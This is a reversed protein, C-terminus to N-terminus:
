SLETGAEVTRIPRRAPERVHGIAPKWHDKLQLLPSELWRWSAAAVLLALALSILDRGFVGAVSGNLQLGWWTTAAAGVLALAPYHILYTTYSVTGLQRAPRLRLFRCLPATSGARLVTWGILGAFAIALLSYGFTAMWLNSRSGGTALALLAFAGGASLGVGRLWQPLKQLNSRYRLLLALAAGWALSDFRAPLFEYEPFAHTHIAFRLVPATLIVAALLPWLRAPRVWRVVPAWMLYFLEEISLSWLVALGAYVFVPAQFLWGHFYAVVSSLYLAHMTWYTWSQPGGWAVAALLYIVLLCYYIPFIRLTRRAYFTSFYHPRERSALLISTILFGSLVFFLDVGAWGLGTIANKWVTGITYHFSIVALVAIARLGDLEAIRGKNQPSLALKTWPIM